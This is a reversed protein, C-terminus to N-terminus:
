TESVPTYGIWLTPVPLGTTDPREESMVINPISELRAEIAALRRTIGGKTVADLERRLAFVERELERIYAQSEPPLNNRNKFAM